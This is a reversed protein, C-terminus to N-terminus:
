LHWPSRMPRSLMRNAQGDNIFREIKSGWKLKRDLRAANYGIIYVCHLVQKEIEADTITQKQSKICEIFNAEKIFVM